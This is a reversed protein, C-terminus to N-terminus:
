AAFTAEANRAESQLLALEEPETKPAIQRDLKRLKGGSFALRPGAARALHQNERGSNKQTAHDGCHTTARREPEVGQPVAKHRMM